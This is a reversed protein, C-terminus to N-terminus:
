EKTVVEDLNLILGAIAAYAAVESADLTDDRPFEGVGLLKDAAERNDRYDALHEAFSALLLELEVPATIQNEVEEPTM